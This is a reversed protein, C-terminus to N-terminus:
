RDSQFYRMNLLALVMVVVFLMFAIVTGYGYQDFNIAVDYMYFAPTTTSTGPGGGTMLLPVLLNQSVGVISLVLLLKIQAMVLPVDIKFVRTWRPAGDVAAADFLESPIAQLGAYYIMLNFPAVWPFDMAIVADLATHPNALWLHVLFGLGM